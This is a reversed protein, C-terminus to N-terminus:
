SSSPNAEAPKRKSLQLWDRQYVFSIALLLAGLVIFSLIRYVRDLQSVDYAFVKIITVAILILAQWRVFASRRWFGVVMLLAGYVMWLASYTFDRATRIDRYSSWDASNWQGPEPRLSAMRQAYYDAIERSLAILALVNLAVVAAAAATAGAEDKRRSGYFAVGALVAIAVAHTAMRANFILRTSHFDDIFLLRAV